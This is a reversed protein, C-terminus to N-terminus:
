QESADGCRHVRRQPLAAWQQRAELGRAARRRREALETGTRPAAEKEVLLLRHSTLCLDLTIQERRVGLGHNHWLRALLLRPGHSAAPAAAKPCLRRHSRAGLLDGGRQPHVRELRLAHAIDRTDEALLRGRTQELADLVLQLPGVGSNLRLGLRADGAEVHGDVGEVRQTPVQQQRQAVLPRHLGALRVAHHHAREALAEAAPTHQALQKAGRQAAASLRLPVVQHRQPGFRPRRPLWDVVVRRVLLHGAQKAGEDGHRVDLVGLARRDEQRARVAVRRLPLGELLAALRAVRHEARLLRRERRELRAVGDHKVHPRQVGAGGVEGERLASPLTQEEDEREPIALGLPREAVCGVQPWVVAVAADREGLHPALELAWLRKRPVGAVPLRKSVPQLVPM